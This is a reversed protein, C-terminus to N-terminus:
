SGNGGFLNSAPGSMGDLEHGRFGRFVGILFAIMIIAIAAIPSIAWVFFLDSSEFYSFMAYSLIKWELFAFGVMAILAFAIAAWRLVLMQKAIRVTTKKLSDDLRNLANQEADGSRASFSSPEQLEEYVDTEYDAM